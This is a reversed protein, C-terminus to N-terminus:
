RRYRVMKTSVRGMMDLVHLFRQGLHIHLELVDDCVDRALAKM